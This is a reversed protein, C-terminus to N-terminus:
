ESEMIATLIDEKKMANSVDLGKEKAMALLEAKTLDSLKEKEEPKVKELYGQEFTLIYGNNFELCANPVVRIGYVDHIEQCLHVFNIGSIIGSKKSFFSYNPVSKTTDPDAGLVEIFKLLDNFNQFYRQNEKIQYM